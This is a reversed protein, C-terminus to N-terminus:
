RSCPHNGDRKDAYLEFAIHIIQDIKFDLYKAQTMWIVSILFLNTQQSRSDQLWACAYNWLSAKTKAKLILLCEVLEIDTTEDLYQGPRGCGDAMHGTRWIGKIEGPSIDAKIEAATESDIELLAPALEHILEEAEQESFDDLELISLRRFQDPTMNSLQLLGAISNKGPLGGRDADAVTEFRTNRWRDSEVFSRRERRLVSYERKLGKRIKDTDVAEGSLWFGLWWQSQRKAGWDKYRCIRLARRYSTAPWHREPSLGRGRGKPAMPGPLLGDERWDKFQRESIIQGYRSSARKQLRPFFEQFLM